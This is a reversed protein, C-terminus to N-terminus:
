VVVSGVPISQGAMLTTETIQGCSAQAQGAIPTLGIALIILALIAPKLSNMKRQTMIQEKKILYVTTKNRGSPDILGKAAVKEMRCQFVMAPVAKSSNEQLIQTLARSSSRIGDCGTTIPNHSPPARNIEIRPFCTMHWATFSRM